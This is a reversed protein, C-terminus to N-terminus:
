RIKKYYVVRAPDIWYIINSDTVQIRNAAGPGMGALVFNSDVFQVNAGQHLQFKEGTDLSIEISHFTSVANRIEGIDIAMITIVAQTKLQKPIGSIM